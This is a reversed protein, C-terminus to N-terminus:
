SLPVKIFHFPSLWWYGKINFKTINLIPMSYLTYEWRFLGSLTQTNLRTCPSLITPPVIKEHHYMYTIVEKYFFDIREICVIKNKLIEHEPARKGFSTMLSLHCDKNYAVSIRAESQNNASKDCIKTMTMSFLSQSVGGQDRRRPM